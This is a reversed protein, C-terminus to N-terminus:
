LLHQRHLQQGLLLAGLHLVVAQGEQDPRRAVRHLRHHPRHRQRRQPRPRPASRDPQEVALRGAADGDQLRRPVPQRRRASDHEPPRRGVLDRRRDGRDPLEDRREDRRQLLEPDRRRGAPRQDDPRRGAGHHQRDVHRADVHLDAAHRARRRHGAPQPQRRGGAPRPGPHQPRDPDPRDGRPQAGLDEGRLHRRGGALRRDRHHNGRALRRRTRSNVTATFESPLQLGDRRFTKFGPLTFTVTYTGPRLDAIRYAGDGDTVASKVKEILVDSSAEVTVGPMSAGSTDKVVGVIASQAYAATSLLMAGAFAMFTRTIRRAM